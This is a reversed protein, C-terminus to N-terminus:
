ICKELVTRIFKGKVHNKQVNIKLMETTVFKALQHSKKITYQNELILGHITHLLM